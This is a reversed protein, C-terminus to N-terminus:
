PRQLNPNYKLSNFSDYIHVFIEIGICHCNTERVKLKVVKLTNHRRMLPPVINKNAKSIHRHLCGYQKSPELSVGGLILKKGTNTRRMHNHAVKNVVLLM